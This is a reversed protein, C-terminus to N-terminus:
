LVLGAIKQLVEDIPVASLWLPLFPLLTAVAIAAATRYDFIVFSMGYVNAAISYLDTTASFDPKELTAPDVSTRADFWKREFVGGVRRAIDGYLLVGDQWARRLMPTFVLPPSVLVATVIAATLAPILGHELLSLGLQSLGNALTGAIAIGVAFAVPAFVRPSYALFQLGAAKDPHATVLHLRLRSVAHLFRTWIGVRWLWALLLGYFLPMSVLAHWWGAPSFWTSEALRWAPLRAHPALLVLALAVAYAAVFLLASPLISRSRTQAASAAEDFRAVDDRDVICERLYDAIRGLQPLTLYEAAILLPVALLLRSNAGIDRFFSFGGPDGALVHALNIAFLPLWALVLALVIRRNAATREAGGVLGIRRLLAVHRPEAFLRTEAM